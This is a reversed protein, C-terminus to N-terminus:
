SHPFDLCQIPSLGLKELCVNLAAEHQSAASNYTVNAVESNSSKERSSYTQQAGLLAQVRNAIAKGSDIIQVPSSFAQQIEDKLLPFHTCGLVIGDVKNLWPSLIHQIEEISVAEGRLKQEAIEVLRTSGIMLVECDQAFEAILDQTYRRKVTAPTALLGIVKRESMAAAPKIAPVVGVVPINVLTRLSPLVVTSATNCAIVVLDVNHKEVLRSVIEQTRNILVTEDLEGYPFAANDFAYVYHLEPLLQRIEQYVSLGGVGSDFILVSKM